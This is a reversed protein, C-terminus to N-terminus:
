EGSPESLRGLFLIAGTADDRILFLFPHDARFTPRDPRMSTAAMTAGTAAGARTGEESVEIFAEHVVASLYPGPQGEGPEALMGSFDAQGPAFAQTVGMERLAGALAFRRAQSFRPLYILAERPEAAALWDALRAPTLLREVDRLGREARPLLVVMSLREGEYPLVLVEARANAAYPVKAVQKMMPVQVRRGAATTFAEPRTDDPDFPHVWAGRFAIASTLVLKTSRDVAGPSLLRRIRQQTRAAVWENIRAAAADPRGAFDVAQFEGLFTEPVTRLYAEDYRYGEDGWLANAVALEYPAQAEPPPAAGLLLRRFGQHVEAPELGRLHLAAELQEATQGRSGVYAMALATHVSTPALVLNGEEDALRRYADLAFANSIEAATLLGPDRSAAPEPMAVPAGTGTPPAQPRSRQQCAASCLLSMLLMLSVPRM